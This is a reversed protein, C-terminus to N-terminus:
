ADRDRGPGTPAAARGAIGGDALAAPLARHAAHPEPRLSRRALVRFRSEHHVGVISVVGGPRVLDFAVRGAAESGIAELVADAGRGQPRRACLARRPGAERHLPEAGFRQALALREAVADVAFV